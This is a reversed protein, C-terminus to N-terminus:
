SESPPLEVSPESERATEEKENEEEVLKLLEDKAVKRDIVKIKGMLHDIVKEEFLPARLEGLAQPNSRYFEWVVKEQGPFSRVREALARNVEEEAVQVGAQQGIEALLLGLRVRREAIKQYDARAAEETTGEDAFSRGTKKQEAEVQRWVTDFERSVLGPPLDFSYKKDLADLLSRKWKMRSSSKYEADITTTIGERLKSLDEYGFAKALEDNVALEGPASAAKLTIEFDAAKGALKAAYNEPFTVHITRQEGLAMGEVQDEFGPIFSGSGLVVDYDSASGGEFPEGDIKGLFDITVKDGKLATIGEGEKLTYTRNQEAFRNVVEEVESDPVDVVLREIEIDEFSGIEFKPLIELGITFTFDAQAEFAKEMEDKDGSFEIKPESAPRIQNEEVIQRNADNVADQVVDMMISRGYLKRLHSVPVKGPRFGNIRAKAKMEHLQGDLRTALDSAPLIVKYERKLGESLTETVQM